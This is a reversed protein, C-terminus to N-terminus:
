QNWGFLHHKPPPITSSQPTPKPPPQNIVPPPPADESPANIRYQQQPQQILQVQVPPLPQQVPMSVSVLQVPPSPQVPAPRVVSHQINWIHTKGFTNTLMQGTRALSLSVLGPGLVVTRAGTQSVGFTSQSANVYQVQQVPQPVQVTQYQPQQVQVTQYQPQAPQEVPVLRYLQTPPPPQAQPTSKPPSPNPTPPAQAWASSGLILTVFLTLTRM